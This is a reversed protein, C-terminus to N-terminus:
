SRFGGHCNSCAKGIGGVAMRAQDANKSRAGASVALAQKQMERAFGKYSNDDTFEYGDRQIAEAIIAVIQAEHDIQELNKAFDNPNSTWPGLRNQAAELRHMLPPRNAVAKAWLSKRIPAPPLKFRTAASWPRGPEDARSKAENFSQDPPWKATSAPGASRCTAPPWGGPSKWRVDGDYELIVAFALALMSFDDRAHKFLNGKFDSASKVDNKVPAQYSKIEDQLADASILKSWAGLDAPRPTPRTAARGGGSSAQLAERRLVPSRARAALALTPGRETSRRRPTPFSPTSCGTTGSGPPLSGRKRPANGADDASVWQQAMMVAVIAAATLPRLLFSRM